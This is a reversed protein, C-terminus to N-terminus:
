VQQNVTVFEREAPAFEGAAVNLVFRIAAPVPKRQSSEKGDAGDVGSASKGTSTRMESSVM